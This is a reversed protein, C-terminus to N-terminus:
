NNGNDIEKLIRSVDELLVGVIGYGGAKSIATLNYWQLDSLNGRTSPTKMEIGIFKGKYCVLLDPVGKKSTNITKVVYAGKSELYKIVRTQYGQENM